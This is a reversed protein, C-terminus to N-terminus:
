RRTRRRAIEDQVRMAQRADILKQGLLVQLVDEAEFAEDDPRAAIQAILARELAEGPRALSAVPSERHRRICDILEPWPPSLARQSTFDVGQFEKLKVHQETSDYLVPVIYRGLGLAYCWEYNVYQSRMSEPTVIVVVVRCARIADDIARDWGMGPTINVRDRWWTIGATAFQAEMADVFYRVSHEFRYSIFVDHRINGDAQARPMM